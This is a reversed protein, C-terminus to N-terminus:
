DEDPVEEEVIRSQFSGKIEPLGPLKNRRDIAEDIRRRIEEAEELTKTGSISFELRDGLESFRISRGPYQKVLEAVDNMLAGDLTFMQSFVADSRNDFERWLARFAAEYGMVKAMRDIGSAYIEDVPNTPPM